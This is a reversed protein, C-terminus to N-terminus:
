LAIAHCYGHIFVLLGKIIAPCCEIPCKADYFPYCAQRQAPLLLLLVFPLRSGCKIAGLHCRSMANFLTMFIQLEVCFSLHSVFTAEDCLLAALCGLWFMSLGRTSIVFWSLAENRMGRSDADHKCILKISSSRNEGISM